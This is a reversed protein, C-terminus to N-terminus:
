SILQPIMVIGHGLKEIISPVITTDLTTDMDNITQIDM